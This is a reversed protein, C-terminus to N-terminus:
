IESFVITVRKKSPNINRESINTIAFVFTRGNVAQYYYVDGVKVMVDVSLKSAEAMVKERDGASIISISDTLNMKKDGLRLNDDSYQHNEAGALLKGYKSINKRYEDLKDSDITSKMECFERSSESDFYENIQAIKGAIRLKAYTEDPTDTNINVETVLLDGRMNKNSPIGDVIVARYPRDDSFPVSAIIVEQSGTVTNFKLDNNPLSGSSSSTSPFSFSHVCYDDVPVYTTDFPVDSSDIDMELKSNFETINIDRPQCYEVPDAKELPCECCGGLLVSLGVMVLLTIRM